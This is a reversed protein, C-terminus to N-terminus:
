ALGLLMDVVWCGRVHPVDARCHALMRADTCGAEELADALVAIHSPCLQGSPLDRDQYASRALDSVLSIYVPTPGLIMPPGDVDELYLQQADMEAQTLNDFAGKDSREAFIAQAIAVSTAVGLTSRSADRRTMERWDHSTATAATAANLAITEIPALRRVTDDDRDGGGIRRIAAYYRESVLLSSARVQELDDEKALGDAYREAVEVARRSEDDPMLSWVRRACACALLRQKRFSLASLEAM